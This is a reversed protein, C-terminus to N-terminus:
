ITPSVVFPIQFSDSPIESMKLTLRESTEGAERARVRSALTSVRDADKGFEVFEDRPEGDVVGGLADDLEDVQGCGGIAGDVVDEVWRADGPGGDEGGETGGTKAEFGEWPM